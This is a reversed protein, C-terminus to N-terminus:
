PGSPGNGNSRGGDFAYILVAAALSGVTNSVLDWGTNEYGGVNTEPLLLTAIFEVVENAAGFGMGAAVCLALLGVTPRATVGHGSFAGRLGQWCVWTVVGFGYAHVLQDYKLLGPVLWLNYLVPTKGGVPWAAPVPMLGGAMHALGWLSLGWLTATTLGVRLHVLAVVVLLVAMVAVYLLFEGSHGRLSAALAVAMYTLTFALVPWVARSTIVAWLGPRDDAPSDSPHPDAM